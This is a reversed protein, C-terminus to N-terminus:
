RAAHRQLAGAQMRIQGAHRTIDEPTDLRVGRPATALGERAPTEAHCMSCRSIVVEEAQAFDVPERRM